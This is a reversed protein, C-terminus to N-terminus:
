KVTVETWVPNGYPDIQVNSVKTSSGGKTVYYWLPISPVDKALQREADQWLKIAETQDSAASARKALDDFVPSSYGADNSAAGTQYIDALFNDPFPYDGRWGTRYAGTMKKGSIDKRAVGFEPYLKPECSGQGIVENISNCVATVWEKHPGDANTAITLKGGPIGGGDKVLQKAKVPDYKTLEGTIDKSYGPINPALWDTAPQEAGKYIAKVISARDIAMSLGQRVKEKGPAGWGADYLPFGIKQISFQPAEIAREGLDKKFSGIASTPIQDIVDLKNDRLATYGADYSTYFQLQVGNSKPKDTGAYKDYKKVTLSKKHNWGGNATDLQFPGNGIPAEGYKAPDKFFEQPLPSYVVYGLSAKFSSYAQVLKITFTKDDVVKLGSLEKSTPEGEKPHTAEYGEIKEFWPSANIQKNTSVAGWNWADVYSKATVPEGNHFTWGSKIKVTYNISDTSEVSEAMAPVPQGTKSDYTYLGRFMLQLPYFGGNENSNAPQLPNQPETSYASYYGAPLGNNGGGGGKDDKKDDSSSGCATAALGLVAVGVVWKVRTTGRM